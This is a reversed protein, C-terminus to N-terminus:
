PVKHMSARHISQDLCSIFLGTDQDSSVSIPFVIWFADGLYLSSLNYPSCIRVM